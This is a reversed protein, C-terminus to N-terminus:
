DFIFFTTGLIPNSGAALRTVAKVSRKLWSSWLPMQTNSSGVIIRYRAGKKELVRGFDTVTEREERARYTKKQDRLRTYGARLNLM